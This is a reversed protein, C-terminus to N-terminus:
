SVPRWVLGLREAYRQAKVIEVKCRWECFACHRLMRHLLEAKVDLFSRAPHRGWDVEYGEVVKRLLVKFEGALKAHEEWLREENAEELVLDTPISKCILFKAPRQNLMVQHYWSLRERVVPDEWCSLANPRLM